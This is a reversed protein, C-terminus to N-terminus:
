KEFKVSKLMLVNKYSNLEIQLQKKIQKQWKSPQQRQARQQTKPTFLTRMSECLYDAEARDM